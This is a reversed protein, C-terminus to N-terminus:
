LQPLGSFEVWRAYVDQSAMVAAHTASSPAITVDTHDAGDDLASTGIALGAASLSVLLAENNARTGGYPTHISRLVGGDLAFAEFTPQEGYLADFLNVSDIALGGHDVIAATARYGGSHATLVQVGTEPLEV